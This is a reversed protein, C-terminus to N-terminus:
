SRPLGDLVSESYGGGIVCMESLVCLRVSGELQNQELQNALVRELCVAHLGFISPMQWLAYRNLGSTTSRCVSEGEEGVGVGTRLVARSKILGTKQHFVSCKGLYARSLCSIFQHFTRKACDNGEDHGRRAGSNTMGRGLKSICHSKLCSHKNHNLGSLSLINANNHLTM